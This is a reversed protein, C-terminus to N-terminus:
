FFVGRKLCSIAYNYRSQNLGRWGKGPHYFDVTEQCDLTGWIGNPQQLWCSWDSICIRKWSLIIWHNRKLKQICILNKIRAICAVHNHEQRDRWWVWQWVRWIRTRKPVNLSGLYEAANMYSNIIDKECLSLDKLYLRNM